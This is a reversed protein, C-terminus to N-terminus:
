NSKEIHNYDQKDEEKIKKLFEITPKLTQTNEFLFKIINMLQAFEEDNLNEELQNVFSIKTQDEESIINEEENSVREYSAEGETTESPEAVPTDDAFIGALASAGPFNAIKHANRRIIGELAISAIDGWKQSFQSKSEAIEQIKNELQEIYEEAEELQSKIEDKEKVLLNYEWEKKEKQFKEKVMNEIEIGSLQAAEATKEEKLTFINRSNRKSNGEYIIITISKTDETVFDEYEDFQEPNNTRPIVKLKDVLIEYDLPKGARFHNQLLQRLQGTQESSYPTREISM